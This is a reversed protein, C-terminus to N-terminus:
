KAVEVKIIFQTGDPMDVLIDGTDPDIEAYEVAHMEDVVAELAVIFPRAVEEKRAQDVLDRLNM